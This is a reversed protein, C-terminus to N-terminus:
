MQGAEQGQQLKMGQNMM